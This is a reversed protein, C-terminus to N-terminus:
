LEAMYIVGRPCQSACVGCGKCYEYDFKYAQEGDRVLVGEPCYSVCRDCSNCVGCSFCRNAEITAPRHGPDDVLGLRVETFSRRRLDPPMVVGDERPVHSFVHMTIEEPGAVAEAPPPFLDEGTLTRHVHLAARRGSGIAASVTGENTAFDGGAFIPCAALGLLVKGDDAHIEAGEPLVSLDHSQGLALIVRDCELDFQADPGVDPEPRPRGSADPAGLRMRQCTLLTKSGERHVQLPLVLEHLHVGEDLAEDIEEAIAPMEDRTRRYVVTVSAAGVRRASRAADMATNGGGVVIVHEGHLSRQGRRVQDLFDIGQEVFDDSLGGLNLARMEQLGTAVFVAAFENSM